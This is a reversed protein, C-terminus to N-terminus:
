KKKRKFVYFFWEKFMNNYHKRARVYSTLLGIFVTKFLFEAVEPSILAAAKPVAISVALITIFDIFGSMSQDHENLSHYSM